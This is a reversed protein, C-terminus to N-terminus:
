IEPEVTQEDPNVAIFMFSGSSHSGTVTLVDIRSPPLVPDAFGRFRQSIAGQVVDIDLVTRDVRRDDIRGPRSRRPDRGFDDFSGPGVVSAFGRFDNWLRRCSLPSVGLFRCSRRSRM